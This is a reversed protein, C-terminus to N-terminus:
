GGSTLGLVARRVEEYAEGTVKMPGSYPQSLEFIFFTSFGVFVFFLAMYCHRRLNPTYAGFCFAIAGFGLVVFIWFGATAKGWKAVFREARLDRIREMQRVLSGRLQRQLENDARLEFFARQLRLYLRSTQTLPSIGVDGTKLELISQEALTTLDKQIGKAQPGDYLGLLVYTKGIAIAQEQVNQQADSFQSNVSSFVLGMVIAYISAIRFAISGALERGEPEEAPGLFRSHAALVLFGSVTFVAIFGLCLAITHLIM